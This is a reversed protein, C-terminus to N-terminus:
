EVGLWDELLRVDATPYDEMFDLNRMTNLYVNVHETLIPGEPIPSVLIFDELKRVRSLAVYLLNAVSKGFAAINYPDMIVSVLTQGQAKHITTATAPIIPHARYGINGVDSEYETKHEVQTLSIIEGDRTRRVSVTDKEENFGLIICIDGNNYDVAGDSGNRRIQVQQGVHFRPDLCFTNRDRIEKDEREVGEVGGCNEIQQPTLKSPDYLRSPRPLNIRLKGSNLAEELKNYSDVQRKTPTLILAGKEKSLAIVKDPSFEQTYCHKNILQIAKSRVWPSKDILAMMIQQLKPDEASRVFQTLATIKWRTEDPYEFISEVSVINDRKQGAGENTDCPPLQAIDGVLIIQMGGFPKKRNERVQKLFCDLHHIQDSGLMGAEDIILVDIANLARKHHPPLNQATNVFISLHMKLSEVGARTFKHFTKGGELLGAATGTYATVEVNKGKERLKSVIHKILFSKGVGPPGIIWINDGLLAADMASMQKKNLVDSM